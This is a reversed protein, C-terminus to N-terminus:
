FSLQAQLTTSWVVPQNVPHARAVDLKINTRHQDIFAAGGAHVTRTTGASNDARFREVSVIPEFAGMRYGAEVFGGYGTATSMAGDDYRVATAQVILAQGPLTSIQAYVDAALALHDAPAATANAGAIADHQWDVGVGASVITQDTFGVGPFFFGKDDGVFSYRAHGALRPVDGPNKPMIEAEADGATGEVGNFVGARLQLRDLVGRVQVGVDRWVRTSSTPYRILATHYDIGNLSIASQMAHRTFPVLMMGADVFVGPNAEPTVRLSLHADQVYISTEWNADKGLNVQETDVFFAIRSSLDGYLMLRARRLFFDTGAGGDPAADQAVVAQPQLLASLQITTEGKSLLKEAGAPSALCMVVLLSRM